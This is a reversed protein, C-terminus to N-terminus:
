KGSCVEFALESKGNSKIKRRNRTSVKKKEKRKGHQQELKQGSKIERNVKILSMLKIVLHTKGLSGCCYKGDAASKCPFKTLSCIPSLLRINDFVSHKLALHIKYRTFKGPLM